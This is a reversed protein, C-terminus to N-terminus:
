LTKDNWTENMDRLNLFNVSSRVLLNEKMQTFKLKFGWDDAHKM